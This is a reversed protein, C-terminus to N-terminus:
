RSQLTSPCASCALGNGTFRPISIYTMSPQGLFRAETPSFDGYRENVGGERKQTLVHLQRIQVM